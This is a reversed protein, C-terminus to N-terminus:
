WNTFKGSSIVYGDQKGQPGTAAVYESEVAGYKAEMARLEERQNRPITPEASLLMSLRM